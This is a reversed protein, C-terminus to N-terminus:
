VSRQSSPRDPSAVADPSKDGWDYNPHTLKELKRVVTIVNNEAAKLQALAGLLKDLLTDLEAVTWREM